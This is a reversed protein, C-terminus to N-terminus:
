RGERRLRKQREAEEQLAMMKSLFGSKKTPLEKDDVPWFKRIVKTEFIGLGSQTIMYLSLGAAYNYLFVGMFIPMFLMIKQMRAAQEDTPTPMMKQQWIWLAVMVPPLVNLHDGILPLHFGLPLLQDPLALDPIWGLFPAQRLDFSVRLAAFLGIFVPIQLFMPLCGGLPPFAGESQMLRAQETRLKNPDKAFKKKLEEIRPQIRKMKAAYRAMATQSRRNLPFLVIRVVLTLLIIALGWSNSIAHLGGLVWLLPRAIWGMMGLDHDHLALLDSHVEELSAPRKPGAYVSFSARASQGTPALPLEIQAETAIQQFRREPADPHNRLWAPDAVFRANAGVLAHRSNGDPILMLAFYKSQVGAFVLGRGALARLHQNSEDGKEAREVVVTQLESEGAARLGVVAQPEIYYSDGSGAYTWAAPTLNFQPPSSGAPLADNRLEFEFVFQEQGPQFRFRKVYTVGTGPTLTFEVGQPANAAGLPKMLWFERDLPERALHQTSPLTSLAFSVPRTREPLTEDTNGVLPWWNRPDRRAEESLGASLFYSGTRLELLGGGRNTFRARYCGPQGPTGVLIELQREESDVERPLNSAAESPAAPEGSASPDGALSTPSSVAPAAPTNSAAAPAQQAAPPPPPPKPFFASELLPWGVLIALCLPLVILLRKDV